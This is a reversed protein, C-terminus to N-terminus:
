RMQIENGFYGAVLSRLSRNYKIEVGRVTTGSKGEFGEAGEARVDQEFQALLSASNVPHVKNQFRSCEVTTFRQEFTKKTGCKQCKCTINVKVVEKGSVEVLMLQSNSGSMARSEKTVIFSKNTVEINVDPSYAIREKCNPCELDSFKQQAKKLVALLFVCGIVGFGFVVGFISLITSAAPIVASLIAAVLFLGVFLYMYPYIEARRAKIEDSNNVPDKWLRVINTPFGKLTKPLDKLPQIFNFKEKAM